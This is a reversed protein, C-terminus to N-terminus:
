EIISLGAGDHWLYYNMRWMFLNSRKFLDVEDFNSYCRLTSM